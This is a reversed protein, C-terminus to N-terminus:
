PASTGQTMCSMGSPHSLGARKRTRKSCSSPVLAGHSEGISLVGKQRIWLSIISFVNVPKQASNAGGSGHGMQPRRKLTALMSGM